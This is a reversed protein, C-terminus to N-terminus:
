NQYGLSLKNVALYSSFRYIYNLNTKTKIVIGLCLFNTAERKDGFGWSCYWTLRHTNQPICLAEIKGALMM